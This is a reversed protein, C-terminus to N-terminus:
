WSLIHNTLHLGYSPTENITTGSGRPSHRVRNEAVGMIDAIGWLYKVRMNSWYGNVMIFQLHWRYTQIWIMHLRSQMWPGNSLLDNCTAKITICSGRVGHHGCLTRGWWEPDGPFVVIRAQRGDGCGPGQGLFVNWSSKPSVEPGSSNMFGYHLKRSRDLMDRNGVVSGKMRDVLHALGGKRWQSSGSLSWSM